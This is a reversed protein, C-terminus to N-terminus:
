IPAKWLLRMDGVVETKLKHIMIAYARPRNLSALGDSHPSVEFREIHCVDGLLTPL